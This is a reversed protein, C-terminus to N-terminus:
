RRRFRTRIRLVHFRSRVGETGDFVLGLAWFMFHSWTGETVNFRSGVCKTGGLVLRLACFIFDPVPVRSVM